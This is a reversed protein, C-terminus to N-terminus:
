RGREENGALDLARIAHERFVATRQAHELEAHLFNVNDGDDLRDGLVGDRDKFGALNAVVKLLRDIQSEIAAGARHPDVDREINLGGWNFIGGGQACEVGRFEFITGGICVHGFLDSAQDLLQILRFARQKKGAIADTQGM